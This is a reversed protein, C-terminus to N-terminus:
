GRSSGMENSKRNEEKGEALMPLTTMGLATLCETM